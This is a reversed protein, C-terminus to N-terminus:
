YPRCLRNIQYIVDTRGEWVEKKTKREGLRTYRGRGGLYLIRAGLKRRRGIMKTGGADEDEADYVCVCGDDMSRGLRSIEEIEVTM